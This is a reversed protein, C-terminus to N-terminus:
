VVTVPVRQVANNAYGGLNWAPELPQNHGGEDSARCWLEHEGAAATWECTWSRWAWDGPAPGLEAEAWTRGGDASWEVREVPAQGSWARGEIRCHGAPLTRARTPFHPTGPPIMLARPLMRSLPVGEDEATARIRYGSTQQYGTFPEAAATIEVLWKVNTMGYWGPVVLRLPFGHQPPLAQGNIEYALVAGAEFAEGLPLSRQYSQEADGEIGRDAGTFVVEVADDGFGAEELLPRLEVGGWCATGVAESLWPQSFPRPDLGARGNGACEMTAVLETKPRSRLDDLSLELDRLGGRIRLRWDGQAIYPIDYHILLYHLGVPTIDYRLAELPLGHNRTALQLEELSIGTV